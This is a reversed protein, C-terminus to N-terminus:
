LAKCFESYMDLVGNIYSKLNNEDLGETVLASKLLNDRISELSIDSQEQTQTQIQTITQM